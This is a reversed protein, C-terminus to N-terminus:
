FAYFTYTAGLFLGPEITGKPTVVVGAGISIGWRKSKITERITVVEKAQYLRLSDLRPDVAGSVWAEYRGASDSYHKQVIPLIVAASAEPTSDETATPAIVVTDRIHRTRVPAPATITVTDRITDRVTDRLILTDSRDPPRQRCSPTFYLLASVVCAISLLVAVNRMMREKRNTQAM